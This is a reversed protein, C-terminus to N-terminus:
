RGEVYFMISNAITRSTYLVYSGDSRIGGASGGGDDNQADKCGLAIFINTLQPLTVGYYGNSSDRGKVFVVYIYEDDSGTASRPHENYCYSNDLNRYETHKEGNLLLIPSGGLFSKTTSGPLGFSAKDAHNMKLGEKSYYISGVEQYTVIMENLDEGASSMNFLGGNKMFTPKWSKESLMQKLSKRGEVDNLVVQTLSKNMKVVWTQHDYKFEQYRFVPDNLMAEREDLTYVGTPNLKHDKQFHILCTKTANGFSKDIVIEYGIEKLKSQVLGVGDGNSGYSLTQRPLYNDSTDEEPQPEVDLADALEVLALNIANATNEDVEGSQLLNKSEQFREVADKCGGGFDDDIGMMYFKLTNLTTQLLTNNPDNYIGQKLVYGCYTYLREEVIDEMIEHSMLFKKLGDYSEKEINEVITGAYPASKIKINIREGMNAGKLDINKVFEEKNISTGPCTKQSFERHFIVDTNNLKRNRIFFYLFKMVELEQDKGFVDNGIDFDGVMEIAFSGTNHGSISVPTTNFDRGTGWTGDPFLTLNQGIDAWGLNNVHYNYMGQQTKDAGNKKFTSHNPSWTHHIHIKEIKRTWNFSSIHDILEKTSLHKYNM